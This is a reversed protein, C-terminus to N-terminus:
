RSTDPMTPNKKPGDPRQDQYAQKDDLSKHYHCQGQRNNIIPIKHMM